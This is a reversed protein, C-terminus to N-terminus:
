FCTRLEINRAFSPNLTLGYSTHRILVNEVRASTLWKVAFHRNVTKTRGDQLTLGGQRTRFFFRPDPNVRYLERYICM